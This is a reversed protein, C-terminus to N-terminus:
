QQQPKFKNMCKGYYQISYLIPDVRLNHYSCRLAELFDLQQKTEGGIKIKFPIRKMCSVYNKGNKDKKIQKFKNLQKWRIVLMTMDSEFICQRVHQEISKELIQYCDKDNCFTHPLVENIRLVCIVTLLFAIYKM